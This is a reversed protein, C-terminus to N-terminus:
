TRYHSFHFDHSWDLDLKNKFGFPMRHGLNRAAYAVPLRIPRNRCTRDARHDISMRPRSADFSANRQQSAKWKVFKPRPPVVILASADFLAAAVVTRRFRRLRQVRQARVQPLDGLHM